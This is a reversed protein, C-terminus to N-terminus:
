RNYKGVQQSFAHNAGGGQSIDQIVGPLLQQLESVTPLQGSFLSALESSFEPKSKGAEAQAAEEEPGGGGLMAEESIRAPDAESGGDAAEPNAGNTAAEPIPFILPSSETNRRVEESEQKQGSPNEDTKPSSNTASPEALSNTLCM